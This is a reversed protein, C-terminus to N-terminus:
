ASLLSAAINISLGIIAVNFVFSLISQALVAKRMSRSTISIDSTQAAVAITLSFYLFDWYDPDADEEPFRLAREHPPSRYYLLAYHFAYIVGILLWSGTVTVATFAYHELQLSGTVQKVTALELVIAAISLTAALSMIVLFAIAGRDEQVALRRVRAPSATGILWALLALYGWVAVNWGLLLRYMPRLSGPLLATVIAGILFAGLLRPRKRAFQIIPRLRM